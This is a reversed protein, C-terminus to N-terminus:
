ASSFFYHSADAVSCDYRLSLSVVSISKLGVGDATQTREAGTSNNMVYGALGPMLSSKDQSGEHGNLVTQIMICVHRLHSVRDTACGLLQM